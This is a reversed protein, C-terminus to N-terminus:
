YDALLLSFYVSFYSLSGYVGGLLSILGGLPVIIIYYRICFSYSFVCVCMVCFVLVFGECWFKQLSKCLDKDEM